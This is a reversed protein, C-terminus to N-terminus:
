QASTAVSREEDRESNPKYKDSYKLDVGLLICLDQATKYRAEKSTHEGAYFMVDLELQQIEHSIISEINEGEQKRQFISKRKM